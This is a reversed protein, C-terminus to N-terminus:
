IKRREGINAYKFGINHRTIKPNTSLLMNKLSEMRDISPIDAKYQAKQIYWSCEAESNYYVKDPIEGMRWKKYDLREIIYWEIAKEFAVDDPIMPFGHEDTVFSTYSLEVYGTEFNTEIFSNNIRYTYVYDQYAVEKVGEVIVPQIETNGTINSTLAGSLDGSTNTIKPKTFFQNTISSKFILNTSDSTLIIDKTLYEAANATVFNSATTTLDTDFTLLKSLGGADSIVATGSTGSLTLTELQTFTSTNYTGVPVEELVKKIPTAHFLDTAYVMPYFDSITGDSAIKIKRATIYNIYGTPLTARYNSIELPTPADDLGNTNVIKFADKAGILRLADAIHEIAETWDVQQYGANRYIREVVSYFPIFNGNLAM